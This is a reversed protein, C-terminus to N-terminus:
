QKEEPSIKKLLYQYTNSSATTFRAIINNENGTTDSQMEFTAAPSSEAPKLTIIDGGPQKRVTWNGNRTVVFLATREVTYTGDKNLTILSRGFDCGATIDDLNRVAKVITWTGAFTATTEDHQPQSCAATLSILFFAFLKQIM